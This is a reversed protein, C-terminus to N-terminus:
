KMFNKSNYLFLCQLYFIFAPPLEPFCVKKSFCRTNTEEANLAKQREKNTWTKRNNINCPPPVSLPTNLNTQITFSSKLPSYAPTGIPPSLTTPSYQSSTSAVESESPVIFIENWIECRHTQKELAKRNM